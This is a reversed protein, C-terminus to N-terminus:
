VRTATALHLAIHLVLCLWNHHIVCAWVLAVLLLISTLENVHLAAHHSVVIQLLDYFSLVTKIGRLESANCIICAPDKAHRLPFNSFKIQFQNVFVLLLLELIAM